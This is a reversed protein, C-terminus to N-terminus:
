REFCIISFMKGYNAQRTTARQLNTALQIVDAKAL